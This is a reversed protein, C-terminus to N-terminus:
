LFLLLLALWSPDFSLSKDSNNNTPRRRPRRRSPAEQKPPEPTAEIIESPDLAELDLMGRISIIGSGEANRSENINVATNTMKSSIESPTLDPEKELLLAASGAVMPSAMSTGSHSVYKTSGKYSLSIIDVGPAVINPKVLGSPTPGRSSFDAVFDDEYSYTKNDDVAGVTIVKPSIGPTTVTRANPGSNGAAAIVTLGHAVASAAAKALPDEMYSTDAPAGLSMNVIKINYKDKNDVVWQLGALIDSTSGSGNEDLVKVGIINAEPAIGRYIPNSYGNGAAIGAVHTGHGDDDYPSTKGNVIDKFAIIRNTPKVLDNHPYVGTDVIAIGVDKGTYGSDNVLRADIALSANDMCKFVKADHNIFQIMNHAAVEDISTAPLEVAIANILPLHYKIKGGANLVCEKIHDCTKESYVIAPIFDKTGASMRTVVVPHVFQARIKNLQNSVKRKM